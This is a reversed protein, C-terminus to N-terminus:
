KKYQGTTLTKFQTTTVVDLGITVSLTYKMGEELDSIIISAQQGISNTNQCLNFIKNDSRQWEELVNKALGKWTLTFNDFSTCNWQVNIATPSLVLIQLALDDTSICIYAIPICRHLYKIYM